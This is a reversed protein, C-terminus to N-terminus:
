KQPIWVSIMSEINKNLWMKIDNANFTRMYLRMWICFYQRFDIVRYRVVYADCHVAVTLVFAYYYASWM